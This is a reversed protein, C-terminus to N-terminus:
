GPASGTGIGPPWRPESSASRGRRREWLREHFFYGVSNVAPEILAVAGGVAWDGTLAYTVSFAIAFHMITFSITKNM